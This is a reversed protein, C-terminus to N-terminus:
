QVERLLLLFYPRHNNRSSMRITGAPATPDGITLEQEVQFDLAMPRGPDLSLDARAQFIEELGTEARRVLQDEDTANQLQALFHKVGRTALQELLQRSHLPAVRRHPVGALCGM